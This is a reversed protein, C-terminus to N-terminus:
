ENEERQEKATRVAITVAVATFFIGCLLESMENSALLERATHWDKNMFWVALNMIGVILYLAFVRRTQAPDTTFADGWISILACVTLGAFAAIFLFNPAFVNMGETVTTLIAFLMCACITVVFGAQFARGRILVQREDYNEPHNRGARDMERFTRYVIIFCAIILVSDVILSIMDAM